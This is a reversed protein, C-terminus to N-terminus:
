WAFRRRCPHVRWGSEAVAIAIALTLGALTVAIVVVAVAIVLHVGLFALAAALTALLVRAIM